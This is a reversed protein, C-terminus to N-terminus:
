SVGPMFLAFVGLAGLMVAGALFTAGCVIGAIALGQAKREKTLGLFGFVVAVIAFIGSWGWDVSPDFGILPAAGTTVAAVGLVLSTITYGLTSRVPTNPTPAIETM